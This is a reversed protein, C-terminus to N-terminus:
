YKVWYDRSLSICKMSSVVFSNGNIDPRVHTILKLLREQVTSMSTWMIWIILSSPNLSFSYCKLLFRPPLTLFVYSQLMPLLTLVKKACLCRFPSSSSICKNQSSLPRQSVKWNYNWHQVNYGTGPCLGIWIEITRNNCGEGPCM